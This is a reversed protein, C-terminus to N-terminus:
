RRSFNLPIVQTIAQNGPPPPFPAARYMVAVAEADLAANGSSRVLHASAVSGSGSFTVSVVAIGTAGAAGAPFRKARVIRSRMENQWSARSAQSVAAGAASAATRDANAQDARPGGGSRSATNPKDQKHVPKIPKKERKKEVKKEPPKTAPKRPEKPPAPPLVAQPKVQPPPPPAEVVPEPDPPPPAEEEPEPEAQETDAAEPANTANDTTSKAVTPEPSLDIMVAAPLEIPAPPRTEQRTLVLYLGVHVGLTLLGAAAWGLIQTAASTECSEVRAHELESARVFADPPPHIM